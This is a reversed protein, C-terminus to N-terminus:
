NSENRAGEKSIHIQTNGFRDIEVRNNPYIVITTGPDEIIAPGEFVMGSELKTSDYITAEHIGSLAYDVLRQGKVADALLAGTAPIEILDLKGIEAIAVIHFGVIELPANLRYTYQREYTAHFRDSIQVWHEHFSEGTQLAIDVAHEQNQYRLKCNITLQISESAISENAFQALASLTLEDALSQAHLIGNGQNMEVIQTLFFDRRIDSMMMGWASFVSAGRPIVVKKVGLEQGLSVAHMAGGGGFAILTFDRPDYGRNL